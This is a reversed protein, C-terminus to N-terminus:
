TKLSDSKSAEIQAKTHLKESNRKNEIVSIGQNDDAAMCQMGKSTITSIWAAKHSKQILQASNVQRGKNVM